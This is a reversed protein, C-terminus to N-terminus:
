RCSPELCIYHYIEEYDVLDHLICSTKDFGYFKPAYFKIKQYITDRLGQARESSCNFKEKIKSLSADYKNETNYEKQGLINLINEYVIQEDAAKLENLRSKLSLHKNTYYHFSELSDIVKDFNDYYTLDYEFIARWLHSSIM